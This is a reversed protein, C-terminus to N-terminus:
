PTSEEERLTDIATAFAAISPHLYLTRASVPTSFEEEIALLLRVALLSHGGLEFFDDDVGIPEVELFRQWTLALRQETTTSPARYETFLEKHDRPVPASPAASEPPQSDTM